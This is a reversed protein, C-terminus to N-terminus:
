QTIFKRVEPDSLDIFSIDGRLLRPNWESSIRDSFFSMQVQKGEVQLLEHARLFADDNSVVIVRRGPYRAVEAVIEPTFSPASGVPYSRVDVDLGRLRELFKTQKANGPDAVTFGVVDVVDEDDVLSELHDLLAEYNLVVSLSRAAFYLRSLDLCILSM